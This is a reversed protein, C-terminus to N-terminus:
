SFLVDRYIVPMPSGMLNVRLPALQGNIESHEPHKLIAIFNHWGCHEIKGALYTLQEKLAM